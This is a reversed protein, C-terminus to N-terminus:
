SDLITPSTDSEVIGYHIAMRILDVMGDCDTKQLVRSRYTSITKPSLSLMTSIQQASYGRALMMCVQMERESLDDFPTAHKGGLSDDALRRAIEVSLYREGRFVTRVAEIIEEPKCSRTLFGSAGMDLMRRPLPGLADVTLCIVKAKSRSLIRRTAEVGGIGPLHKDIIVVNPKLDITMRVSDEASDSEGAVEIDDAEELIKRVGSRILDHSDVLLVRIM